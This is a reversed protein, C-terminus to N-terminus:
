VCLAFVVVMCTGMPSRPEGPPEAVLSSYINQGYTPADNTFSRWVLYGGETKKHFLDPLERSLIAQSLSGLSIM